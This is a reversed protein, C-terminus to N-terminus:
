EALMPELLAVPVTLNGSRDSPCLLTRHQHDACLSIGAYCGNRRLRPMLEVVSAGAPLWLLNTLAAGHVGAVAQCQRFLYIQEELSLLGPDIIEWGQRRFVQETEGNNRIRRTPANRLLYVKRTAEIPEGTLFRTRLWAVGAPDPCGSVMTPGSFWYREAIIDRGDVPHIRDAVGLIELSRVAFAPLKPPVLIRCDPPFRDLVALRTLGDLFWHYYNTGNNWRSVISTVDGELRTLGRTGIRDWVPDAWCQPGYVSENCVRGTEDIHCFSPALLRAEKRMSWLTQWAAHRDQGLGASRIESAAPIPPLPQGACLVEGTVGHARIM